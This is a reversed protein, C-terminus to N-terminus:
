ILFTMMLVLGDIDNGYGYSMAVGRIGVLVVWSCMDGFSDIGLVAM